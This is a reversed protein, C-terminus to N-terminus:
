FVIDTKRKPLTGNTYYLVCLMLLLIPIRLLGYVRSGCKSIFDKSREEDGLYKTSCERIAEYSFGTIQVEGDMQDRDPKKMYDGPRSTVLMFCSGLSNTIANDIDTNTGKMYEDYGDFLILARKERIIKKIHEKSVGMTRMKGHQQLIIEELPINKSVNKLAVLFVFDFQQLEAPAKDEAWDMALMAMSCTKGSGPEGLHISVVICFVITKM